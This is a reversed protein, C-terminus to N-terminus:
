GPTGIANYFDPDNAKVEMHKLTNWFQSWCHAVARRVTDTIFIQNNVDRRMAELVTSVTADAAWGYAAIEPIDVPVKGQLAWSAIGAVMRYEARRIRVDRQTKLLKKEIESNIQARIVEEENITLGRFVVEVRGGFLSCKKVFRHGGLVTQVYVLVDEHAPEAAPNSLDLGCRPCIVEGDTETAPVAPMEVPQQAAREKAEQLDNIIPIPPPGQEARAAMTAAQAMGPIGMDIDDPVISPPAPTKAQELKTRVESLEEMTRYIDAQESPSLESVDRITPPEIPPTNPPVPTLGQTNAAAEGIQQAEATVRKGLATQTLDPIPDGDKWGAATLVQQELPTLEKGSVGSRPVKGLLTGANAPLQQQQTGAPAAPPPSKAM